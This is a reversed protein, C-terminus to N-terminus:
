SDMLEIGIWLGLNWKNKSDGVYQIRCYTVKTGPPDVVTEKFKEIPHKSGSESRSGDSFIL